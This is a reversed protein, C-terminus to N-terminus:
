IGAPLSEALTPIKTRENVRGLADRLLQSEYYEKAEIDFYWDTDIDLKLMAEKVEEPSARFFEKRPNSANVRKNDFLKHLASEIAPADKVYTRAHVDFKFPVSADGLENVRDMPELRRTMGIKVIGEGFSGINSIVYIYGSRTIQAQSLKRSFNEEMAAIENKLAQIESEISHRESGIAQMALLQAKKLDSQKYEIEDDYNESDFSYQKNQLRITEKQRIREQKINEKKSLEQHWLFLEETKLGFYDESISCYVTEGLRELQNSLNILKEQAKDYTSYRMLKRISDFETNFAVVVLHRTAKLIKAGIRADGLWELSSMSDVANDNNILKSQRERVSQISDKLNESDDYKFIPPYLGGKIMKIQPTISQIHNELTSIHKRGSEIKETLADIKFKLKLLLQEVSNKELVSEIKSNSIVLESYKKRSTVTMIVFLTAISLSGLTVYVEIETM